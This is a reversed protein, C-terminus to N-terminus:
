AIGDLWNRFLARAGKALGPAHTWNAQRLAVVGGGAGRALEGAHGILWRELGLATVEPHFQLALASSGWTFAQHAAIATSAMLTAGDPLDFTDGHWHLVPVSDLAALPSSHGAGTLALPSWGVEPGNPNAFVRAGLARAMLQAGLCIGIVPRGAALRAALLRTEDALFPYLQDETAGIPGGLVVVLDPALPDLAAINDAGAEIYRVAVGREELVMGLSGIDEFAVHRIALCTEM